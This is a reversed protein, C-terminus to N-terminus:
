EIKNIGTPIFDLVDYSDRPLVKVFIMMNIHYITNMVDGSLVVIVGSYRPAFLWFITRSREKM